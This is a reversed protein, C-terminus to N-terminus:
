KKLKFDVSMGRVTSVKEGRQKAPKWKPMMSAVRVAEEDCGGGIGRSVKIDSISGDKEITFNLYVTGEIKKEKAVEPYVLNKRLFKLRAKDGGPYEPSELMKSIEEATIVAGGGTIDAQIGVEALEMRNTAIDNQKYGIYQPTNCAAFTGAIGLSIGAVTAVKGLQRRRHLENELYQM